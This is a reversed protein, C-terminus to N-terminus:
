IRRAEETLGSTGGIRLLMAHFAAIVKSMQAAKYPFIEPSDMAHVLMASAVEFIVLDGNRSEACDLGIYDLQIQEALAALAAKHRQAFAEDFSAMALREEERREPNAIMEEYPYHVMWHESIGM